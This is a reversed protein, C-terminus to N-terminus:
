GTTPFKFSLFIGMQRNENYRACPKFGLNRLLNLADTQDHRLAALIELHEAQRAFEVARGLLAKGWGQRRLEPAVFLYKLECARRAIPLLGVMAQAPDNKGKRALWFNGRPPAYATLPAALDLDLGFFQPTISLEDFYARTLRLLESLNERALSEICLQTPM